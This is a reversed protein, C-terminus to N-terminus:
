KNCAQKFRQFDARVIHELMTNLIRVTFRNRIRLWFHCSKKDNRAHARQDACRAVCVRACGVCSARVVLRMRVFVFMM